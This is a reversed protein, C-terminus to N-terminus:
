RQVDKATLEYMAKPPTVRKGAKFRHIERRDHEKKALKERNAERYKKQYARRSILEFEKQCEPKLCKVSAYRSTFVYGCLPCTRTM